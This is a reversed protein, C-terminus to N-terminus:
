SNIVDDSLQWLDVTYKQHSFKYTISVIYDYYMVTVYLLLAYPKSLVYNLYLFHASWRKGFQPGRFTQPYDTTNNYLSNKKEIFAGRLENEWSQKKRSPM